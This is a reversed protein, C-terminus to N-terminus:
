SCLIFIRVQDNAQLQCQKQFKLMKEQMALNNHESEKQSLETFAHEVEMLKERLSDGAHSKFTQTHIERTQIGPNKVLKSLIQALMCGSKSKSAFTIRLIDGLEEQRMISKKEVGVELFYVSLTYEIGLSELYDVVLSQSVSSWALHSSKSSDTSTRSQSLKQREKRSSVKGPTSIRYLWIENTINTHKNTKSKSIM